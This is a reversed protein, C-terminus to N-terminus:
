GFSVALKRRSRMAAGIAGFGGLMLAWSAPEPVASDLRVGLGAPLGGVGDGTISFTYSGPGVTLAIKSYSADTWYLGYPGTAQVDGAGGAYFTTVGFVDGSLTYVDGTNCCDVVSLVANSSITFTWPSNTTPQGALNLVDDQWGTDLTLVAAAAPVTAFAVAAVAITSMLLNRM